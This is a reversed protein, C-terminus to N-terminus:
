NLENDFGKIKIYKAQKILKKLNHKFQKLKYVDDSMLIYLTEREDKDKASKYKNKRMELALTKSAVRQDALILKKALQWDGAAQAKCWSMAAASSMVTDVYEDQKYLEYKGNGNEIRYYKFVYYTNGHKSIAPTEAQRILRNFRDSVNKLEFM